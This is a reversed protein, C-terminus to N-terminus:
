LVRFGPILTLRRQLTKRAAWIAPVSVPKLCCHAATLSRWPSFALLIRRLCAAPSRMWSRKLALDQTREIRMELGHIRAETGRLLLQAIQDREKNRMIKSRWFETRTAPLRFMAFALGHCFCEHVFIVARFVHFFLIMVALCTKAIFDSICAAFM